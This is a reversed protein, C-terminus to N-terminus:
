QKPVTHAPANTGSNTKNSDKAFLGVLGTVNGLLFTIWGKGDKPIGQEVFAQNLWTLLIIVSGFLTTVPSSFM